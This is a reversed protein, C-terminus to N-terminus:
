TRQLISKASNTACSRLMPAVGKRSVTANRQWWIWDEGGDKGLIDTSASKLIQDENWPELKLESGNETEFDLIALTAEAQQGSTVVMLERQFDGSKSKSTTMIAFIDLKPAGEREFAFRQIAHLMETAHQANSRDLCKDAKDRLWTLPKVVSSIGIRISRGNETSEVWEKYDRDFIEEFTLHDLSAEKAAAIASYFSDRDWPEGHGMVVQELCRVAERDVTSVKGEATLNATDILIASLALKAIEEEGLLQSQDTKEPTQKRTSDSEISWFGEKQLLAVVLSTCSGIGTRIIRPIATQPVFSEDVHHDICAVIEFPLKRPNEVTPVAFANHDVLVLPHKEEEEDTAESHTPFLKKAQESADLARTDGITVLYDQLGLVREGQESGDERSEGEDQTESGRRFTNGTALEVAVSFEPRLRGLQEARVGPLNILPVALRKPQRGAPQRLPVALSRQTCFYAYLVASVFSDLDASPNGLVFSHPAFSRNPPPSPYLLSHRTRSLFTLLPSTSPSASPSSM